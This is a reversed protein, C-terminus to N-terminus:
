CSREGVWCQVADLRLSVLMKEEGEPRPPESSRGGPSGPIRTGTTVSQGEEKQGSNRLM